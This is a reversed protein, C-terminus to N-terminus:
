QKFTFKNGSIFFRNYWILGAAFCLYGANYTITIFSADGQFNTVLAYGLMTDALGVLIWAIFIWPISTLQGRGANLVSLVAPIFLAADMVPYAVSIAVGALDSYNSITATSIISWASFVAYAGAAATVVIIKYRKVGKGFFKFLAYLYYAFAGYASLWFGDAISPFPAKQGLVIETYAWISEAVMWLLLAISLALYAKGFLGGVRQKAVVIVSLGAAASITAVRTVDGVSSSAPSGMFFILLISVGAAAALYAMGLNRREKKVDVTLGAKTM